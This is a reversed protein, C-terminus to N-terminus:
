RRRLANSRGSSVTSIDMAFGPPGRRQRASSAEGTWRATVTPNLMAGHFDAALREGAEMEERSILPRGQKDRRQHLWTLLGKEDRPGILRKPGVM